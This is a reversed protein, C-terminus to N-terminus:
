MRAPLDVEGKTKEAEWIHSRNDTRPVGQEFEQSM